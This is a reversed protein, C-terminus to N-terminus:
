SGTTRSSVTRDAPHHAVLRGLGFVVHNDLVGLQIETPAARSGPWSRSRRAGSNIAELDPLPDTVGDGEVALRYSDTAAM